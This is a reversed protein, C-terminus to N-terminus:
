AAVATPDGISFLRAGDTKTEDVLGNFEVELVREADNQYPIVIQNGAVAKFITVTHEDGTADVPKLVLTSAEASAKKGAKSGVDLRAKGASSVLTGTPIAVKLNAITHEALPVKATIHEGMLRKDVKTEGYADVSIDHWVPEYTLEVGGKTHGLDVGDLTVICVGLAVKSADM